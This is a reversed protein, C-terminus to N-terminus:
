RVKSAIRQALRANAEHSPCIAILHARLDANLLALDGILDLLKHRVMEDAFRLGEPNLVRDGQIVVANELSGGLMAGHARMAEAEEFLCFTRAPALERCMATQEFIMTYFQSKILPCNPYHILCSARLQDSPLAILTSSGLTISLPEQPALIRKEGKSDLRGSAQIREIWEQASGDGIPIEPGHVEVLADDIDCIKLAALLHEVTGVKAHDKQLNTTRFSTPDRSDLTGWVEPKSPLDIRRFCIGTQVQLHKRDAQGESAEFSPLPCLTVQCPKGSQLGIGNWTSPRAITTRSTQRTVTQSCHIFIFIWVVCELTKGGIKM